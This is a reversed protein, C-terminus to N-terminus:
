PQGKWKIEIFEPDLRRAGQRTKHIVPVMLVRLLDRRQAISLAAWTQEADGVTFMTLLPSATSPTAKREAAEIKPLLGAEIRALAAPTIEGAAASDYFSDLRARLARAEDLAASAASDDGALLEALDPRNLRAIAIQEVL